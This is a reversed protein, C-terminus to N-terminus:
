NSAHLTLVFLVHSSFFFLKGTNSHNVLKETQQLSGASSRNSLEDNSKKTNQNPTTSSSSSTSSLNSSSLLLDAISAASQTLLEEVTSKSTDFLKKLSFFSSKSNVNKSSELALKLNPETKCKRMFKSQDECTLSRMSISRRKGLRFTANYHKNYDDIFQKINNEIDLYRKM